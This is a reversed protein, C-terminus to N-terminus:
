CLNRGHTPEMSHPCLLAQSDPIPGWHRRHITDVLSHNNNHLFSYVINSSLYNKHLTNDKFDKASINSHVSSCDTDILLIIVVFPLADLSPRSRLSVCSALLAVTLYAWVSACERPKTNKCNECHQLFLEGFSEIVLSLTKLTRHGITQGKAQGDGENPTRESDWIRNPVANNKHSSRHTKKRRSITPTSTVTRATTTTTTPPPAAATTRRRTSRM